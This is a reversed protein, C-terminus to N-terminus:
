KSRRAKKLKRYRVRNLLRKLDAPKVALEKACDKLPSGHRQMVRVRDAIRSDEKEEFRQRRGRKPKKKGDAVVPHEAGPLAVQTDLVEQIGSAIQEAARHKAFNCLDATDHERRAAWVIRSDPMSAIWGPLLDIEASIGALLSAEIKDLDGGIRQMRKLRDIAAKVLPQSFDRIGERIVRHQGESALGRRRVDGAAIHIRDTLEQKAQSFQPRLYRRWGACSDLQM